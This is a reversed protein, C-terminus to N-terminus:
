WGREQRSRIHVSQVIGLGAMTVLTFSGGYSLLPLPLGIVPMFGVTMSINVVVHCYIIVMVGVCLLRGTDDWAKFATQLGCSVLLAFLALVVCSGFYGKEEAIVSYIFDTPAVSRPLFGLINQTGRLFGKGWTGGSGVAIESQRKNWGVGLPDRDPNIFVMIRRKHYPRLGVLRMVKAQGPKDVGLREPLFLASCIIGVALLGALGLRSLVRLPLGAVFLMALMTPVFVMATGLAPELLILLVPAGLLVSVFALTRPEGPDTDPRSLTNALVIVTALKALESPQFGVGGVTLWRRAGYIRTGVLLVLVLLVLSGLYGWWAAKVLERYDIAACTLYCLLGAVAWVLQKKYLTRVPADPSVYCSSYIFLVGLGLLAGVVATLLWHMDALGKVHELVTKV